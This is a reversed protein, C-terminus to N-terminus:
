STQTNETMEPERRLITWGTYALVIAILPTLYNFFAYIGYDLPSVALVSFM